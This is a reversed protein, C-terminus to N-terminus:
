AGDSTVECPWSPPTSMTPDSINSTRVGSNGGGSTLPPGNAIEVACEALKGCIGMPGRFAEFFELANM